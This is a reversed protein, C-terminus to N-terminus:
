SLVTTVFMVIVRAMIILILGIIVHFISRRVTATEEEKGMSIVLRVGDIIIVIVAILAVFDLVFEVIQIVVTRVDGEVPGNISDAAELGGSLGPGTFKAADATAVGLPLALLGLLMGALVTSGVLRFLPM